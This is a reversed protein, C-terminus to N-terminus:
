LSNRIPLTIMMPLVMLFTLPIILNKLYTVESFYGYILAIVMTLPISFILNKQLWSLKKM